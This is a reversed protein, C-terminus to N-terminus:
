RIGSRESFYSLKINRNDNARNGGRLYYDIPTGFARIYTKELLIM